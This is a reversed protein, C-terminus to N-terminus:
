EEIIKVHYRIEKRLISVTEEKKWENPTKWIKRV